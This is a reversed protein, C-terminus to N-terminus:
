HTMKRKYAPVVVRTPAMAVSAQRRCGGDEAAVATVPRVWQHIHILRELQRAKETLPNDGTRPAADDEEARGVTEPRPCSSVEELAGVSVVEVRGVDAVLSVQDPQYDLNEGVQHFILM